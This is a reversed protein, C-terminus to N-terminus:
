RADRQDKHVLATVAAIHEPTVGCCGGIIRTGKDIWNTCTEAFAEPAIDGFVWDPITFHGSEPYAGRPGPWHEGLLDLAADTDDISSHMILIADAGDVALADVIDGLPCDPRNYGILTDDPGTRASIGIWLPLGTERAADCAWVSYDWDRMMEMAIFDVGHEALEHAKRRFLSRCEAEPKTWKPDPRDTGPIIPRMASMSGAVAVPRDADAQAQKATDIAIADLAEMEDLLRHADLILPSTAFTNATIVEAGAAIYADHVERVVHPHSRNALACWVEGSMPAGRRQIETGTGGDIIIPAGSQLRPKLQEYMPTKM